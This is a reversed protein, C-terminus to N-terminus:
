FHCEKCMSVMIYKCLVGFLLVVKAFWFLDLNTKVELVGCRGAGGVVVLHKMELMKESKPALHSEKTDIYSPTTTFRM